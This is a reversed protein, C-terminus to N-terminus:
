KRLEFYGNAAADAKSAFVEDVPFPADMNGRLQYKIGNVPNKGGVISKTKVLRGGGFAYNNYYQDGIPVGQLFVIMGVDDLTNHWDEQSIIPLTFVYSLGQKIAYENHYNIVNALDQEISRVITSRRVEEFKDVDELLPLSVSIASVSATAIEEFTGRIEEGSLSNIITVFHDLTFSMSNGLTDRYLFPKKPLWRHEWLISGKDSTTECLAYVYYGDYDIVVVAPIYRLLASKAIPDDEIGLNIALTNLMAKLGQEKDVRMFKDSGYGSEYHQMENLNLAAGGDQVATRLISTYKIELSNVERLQGSRLCGIWLLPAIILVFIISWDSIKM